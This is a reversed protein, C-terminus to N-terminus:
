SDMAAQRQMELDDDSVPGAATAVAPAPVPTEVRYPDDEPLQRIPAPHTPFVEQSKEGNERLMANVDVGRDDLEEERWRLAPISSACLTM